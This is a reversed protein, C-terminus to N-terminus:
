RQPGLLRRDSQRPIILPECKIKLEQGINALSYVEECITILTKNSSCKSGQCDFLHKQKIREHSVQKISKHKVLYNSFALNLGLKGKALAPSNFISFSFLLSAINLSYVHGRM